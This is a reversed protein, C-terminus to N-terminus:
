FAININIWLIYIDIKLPKFNNNLEKTGVLHKTDM